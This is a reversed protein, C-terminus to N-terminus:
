INIVWEDKWKMDTCYINTQKIYVNWLGHDIYDGRSFDQAYINDM